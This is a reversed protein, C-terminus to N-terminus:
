FIYVSACNKQFNVTLQQASSLNLNLMVHKQTLFSIKFQQKTRVSQLQLILLTYNMKLMREFRPLKALGPASHVIKM